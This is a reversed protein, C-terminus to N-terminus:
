DPATLRAWLRDGRDLAPKGEAGETIRRALYWSGGEPAAPLGQLATDEAPLAFDQVRM